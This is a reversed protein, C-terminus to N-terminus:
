RPCFPVNDSLNLVFEFVFEFAKSLQILGNLSDRNGALCCLQSGRQVLDSTTSRPLLRDLSGPRNDTYNATALTPLNASVNNNGHACSLWLM